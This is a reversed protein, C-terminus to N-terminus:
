LNPASILAQAVLFFNAATQCKVAAVTNEGKLCEAPKLIRRKEGEWSLNNSWDWLATPVRCSVSRWRIVPVESRNEQILTLEHQQHAKTTWCDSSGHLTRLLDGLQYQGLHHTSKTKKRHCWCPFSLEGKHHEWTGQQSIAETLPPEFCREPFSASFSKNFTSTRAKAPEERQLIHHEKGM